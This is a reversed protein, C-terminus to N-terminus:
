KFHNINQDLYKFSGIRKVNIKNRFALNESILKLIFNGRTKKAAKYDEFSDGIFLLNKNKKKIKNIYTM